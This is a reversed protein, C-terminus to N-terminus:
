AREGAIVASHAVVLGLETLVLYEHPQSGFAVLSVVEHEAVDGVVSSTVIAPVVKTAENADQVM